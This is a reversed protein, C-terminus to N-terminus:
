FYTQGRGYHRYVLSFTFSFPMSFLSLHLVTSVIFVGSALILRFNQFKNMILEFYHSAVNRNLPSGGKETGMEAM